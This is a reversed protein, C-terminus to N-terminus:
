EGKFFDIDMLHVMLHAFLSNAWAFWPRSYNDPDKPDFSEHMYNTGAHTNSLTELIGKIEERDDTTLAQMILAIHWIYGEKTHPSGIGKAYPGEYYYPNDKSLVFRRTRLYMPDDKEAYGLYPIALLSPSNADDMLNQHGLGDVEYAYIKGYKETDAIGYTDIGKQIQEKLEEAERSIFEDKYVKQNIELLKELAKVAMMNAPILYHYICADDSPRFATWSMGTYGVPSGKGDNCLVGERRKFSFPSNEHHQETRIVKLIAYAMEKWTDTFIKEEGITKWYEYSLYLPACLSDLEYKREWVLPYHDTIDTKHGRNPDSEDKNFANAYPDALIQVAHKAIVSELIERLYADEKAYRIYFIVQAYSDRLWMAPIDGTIVFYSGDDLKEVTTSITSLFCQAVLPALKPYNKEYYDQLHEAENLLSEPIKM